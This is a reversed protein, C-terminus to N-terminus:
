GVRGATTRGEDAHHTQWFTSDGSECSVTENRGKLQPNEHTSSEASKVRRTLEILERNAVVFVQWTDVLCFLLELNKMFYM